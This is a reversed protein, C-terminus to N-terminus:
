WSAGEQPSHAQHPTQPMASLDASLSMPRQTADSAPALVDLLGALALAERRMSYLLSYTLAPSPTPQCSLLYDLRRLIAAIEARAERYQERRLDARSLKKHPAGSRAGGSVYRDTGRYGSHAGPTHQTPHARERISSVSGRVDKSTYM